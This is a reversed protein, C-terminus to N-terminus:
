NKTLMNENGKNKISDYYERLGLYRNNWLKLKGNLSYSYILTNTKNSKTDEVTYEEKVQMIKNYLYIAPRKKYYTVEVRFADYKKLQKCYNITDLLVKTGYGKKRYKELITFWDLWITDPYERFVDVGTIGILNNKDYVLFIINDDKTNVAKDYLDNYDPDKPWTETQIKYAIDFNDLSLPVYTLNYLSEM